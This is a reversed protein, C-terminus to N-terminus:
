GYLGGMYSQKILGLGHSAECFKRVDTKHADGIKAWWVYLLCTLSKALISVRYGQCTKEQCTLNFFTRNLAIILLVTTKTLLTKNGKRLCGSDRTNQM